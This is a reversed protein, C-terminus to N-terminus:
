NDYDGEYNLIGPGCEAIIAKALQYDSSLAAGSARRNWAERAMRMAGVRTPALVEPGRCKCVTCDVFGVFEGHLMTAQVTFGGKKHPFPCDILFPKDMAGIRDLYPPLFM